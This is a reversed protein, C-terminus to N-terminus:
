DNRPGGDAIIKEERARRAAEIVKMQYAGLPNEKPDDGGTIAVYVNYDRAFQNAIEVADSYTKVRVPRESTHVEFM